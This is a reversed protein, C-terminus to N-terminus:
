VYHFEGDFNKVRLDAASAAPSFDPINKLKDSHKSSYGISNCLAERDLIKM